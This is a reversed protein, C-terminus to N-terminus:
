RVLTNEGVVASITDETSFYFQLIEAAMAALSAGSSGKEVVLCMAIQPDDYPAFCVFTANTSMNNNVQATGTKAGAKVPLQNFHRAISNSSQTVEYMGEKIAKLNKDEINISDLVVPEYEEIVEGYDASKVSKLLHM